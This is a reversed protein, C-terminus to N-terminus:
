RTMQDLKAIVASMGCQDPDFFGWEDETQRPHSCKSDLRPWYGGAGPPLAMWLDSDADFATADPEDELAEVFDAVVDAMEEPVPPAGVHEGRPIRTERDAPPSVAGARALPVSTFDSESSM